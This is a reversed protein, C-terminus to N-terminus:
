KTNTKNKNQKIKCNNRKIRKTKKRKDALEGGLEKKAALM